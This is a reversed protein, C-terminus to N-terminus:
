TNERKKGLAALRKRLRSLNGSLNSLAYSPYGATNNFQAAMEIDQKEKDTLPPSIREPWGDGKRAERNIYKIRNREAELTAIKAKIRDVADHDDSYIANAAAREINAAKTAMEDAKVSHRYARESRDYFRSRESIHGPQTFFAHDGRFPENQERLAAAKADRQEARERLRAARRNRRDRYTTM